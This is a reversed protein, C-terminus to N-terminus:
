LLQCTQDTLDDMGDTYYCTNFKDHCTYHIIIPLVLQGIYIVKLINSDRTICKTYQIM